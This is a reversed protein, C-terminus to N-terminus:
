DAVPLSSDLMQASKERPLTLQSQATSHNSERGGQLTLTPSLPGSRSPWLGSLGSSSQPFLPGERRREERAEERDRAGLGARGVNDWLLTLFLQLFM